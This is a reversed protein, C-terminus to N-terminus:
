LGVAHRAGVKETRNAWTHVRQRFQPGDQLSSDYCPFDKLTRVDAPFSGTIEDVAAGSGSESM